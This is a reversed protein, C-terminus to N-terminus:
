QQSVNFSDASVCGDEPLETYKPPDCTYVPSHPTSVAENYSPPHPPLLLPEPPATARTPPSSLQAQLGRLGRPERTTPPCLSMTQELSLRETQRKPKLHLVFMKVLFLLFMLGVISFVVILIIIPISVLMDAGPGQSQLCYEMQEDKEEGGCNIQGDCFLERKICHSQTSPCKRYYNDSGTCTKKFPTIVLKLQKPQQGRNPPHVALWLDMERDEHEFYERRLRPTSGYDLRLLSGDDRLIRRAPEWHGCRKPGKHSTFVLFDRGFQYFDRTCGETMDLHMEETFVYFGLQDSHLELELHCRLIHALTSNLTLVTPKNHLKLVVKNEQSDACLDEIRHYRYDPIVTAGNSLPAQSLFLTLSLFMSFLPLVGALVGPLIGWINRLLNKDRPMNRSLSIFLDITLNTHGCQEM